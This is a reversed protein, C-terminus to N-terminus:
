FSSLNEGPIRASAGGPRQMWRARARYTAPVHKQRFFTRSQDSRRSAIERAQVIDQLVYFADGAEPAVDLGTLNVPTSPGAQKVKKRPKLTDYM